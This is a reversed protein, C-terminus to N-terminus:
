YSSVAEPKPSFNTAASSRRKARLADQEVIFLLLDSRSAVSNLM